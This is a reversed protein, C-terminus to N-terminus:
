MGFLPSWALTPPHDKWLNALAHHLRYLPAVVQQWKRGTRHCCHLITPLLDPELNILRLLFSHVLAVIAWLKQRYEWLRVRISAVGLASKGFRFAWEVQWRRVYTRAVGIAGWASSADENTLLWWSDHRKRRVVVLWLPTPNGPLSVPVSAIGLRLPQNTKPDPVTISWRSRVKQTLQSARVEQGDPGVLHYDKRWRVILRAGLLLLEGLFERGDYGRDLLCIVKQAWRELLPLLVNREAERQGEAEDDPAKPSHWHLRALTLSGTWGTVVAAVWGFGPVVIPPKIPPGGSARRLLRAEASRVKTLGVLKRASPKEVVSGDLILLAEGEKACTSEVALDAEKLLWDDVLDAQWKTSRLLRWLRKVGAPAHAGDTLMEGLETLLLSQARDRHRIINVVTAAFSRVLRADLHRDLLVLLPGLYSALRGAVEQSLGEQEVTVEPSWLTGTTGKM